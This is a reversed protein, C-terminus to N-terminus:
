TTSTRTGVVAHEAVWSADENVSNQSLLDSRGAFPSDGNKIRGPIKDNFAAHQSGADSRVGVGGFFCTAIVEMMAVNMRAALKPNADVIDAVDNDVVNM